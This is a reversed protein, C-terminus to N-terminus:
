FTRDLFAQQRREKNWPFEIQSVWENDRLPLNVEPCLWNVQNEEENPKGGMNVPFQVQNGFKRRGPTIHFTLGSLTPILLTVALLTPVSRSPQLSLNVKGCNLIFYYLEQPKPFGGRPIINFGILSEPGGGGRGIVYPLTLRLFNYSGSRSEM